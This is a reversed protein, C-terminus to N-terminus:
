DSLQVGVGPSKADLITQPPQSFDQVLECQMWLTMIWILFTRLRYSYHTHRHFTSMSLDNSQNKGSFDSSTMPDGNKFRQMHRIVHVGCDWGNEQTPISPAWDISFQFVDKGIDYLKFFTQCFEVVDMLNQRPRLCAFDGRVGHEHGFDVLLESKSLTKNFVYDAILSQLVNFSQTDMVDERISMPISESAERKVMKRLKQVFPSVKFKSSKRERSSRTKMVHNPYGCLARLPEEISTACADENKENLDETCLKENSLTHLYHENVNMNNRDELSRECSLMDNKTGEEHMRLPKGSSRLFLGKVTTYNEEFKALIQDCSSSSAGYAMDILHTKLQQFTKDMEMLNGGDVRKIVDKNVNSVFKEDDENESAMTTANGDVCDRIENEIVWIKLNENVYGGLKKLRRKRDLVEDDGWATIRPSPRTYLPLFKEEFSIHEHYFLMLFLLCGCVGSQQKKKFEEIGHVLYSLVFEAWNMKKISDIDEVLHLFSRNVFLKM